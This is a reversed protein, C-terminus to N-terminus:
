FPRPIVPRLSPNGLVVNYDECDAVFDDSMFYNFEDIRSTSVGPHCMILGHDHIGKLFMRFYDRYRSSKNFDYVGAFSQNHPIGQQTVLKKLSYCGTFYIPINKIADRSQKLTTLLNNGPIRIYCDKQWFYEDYLRILAKRIVPLQHVHRHGDIFDPLRGM